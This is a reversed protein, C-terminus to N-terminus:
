TYTNVEKPKCKVNDSVFTSLEKSSSQMIHTAVTLKKGFHEVGPPPM